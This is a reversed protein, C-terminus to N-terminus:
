KREKCIMIVTSNSINNDSLIGCLLETNSSNNVSMIANFILAIIFGIIFGSLFAVIVESLNYDRM